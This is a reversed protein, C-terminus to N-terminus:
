EVWAAADEDAANMSETLLPLAAKCSALSPVLPLTHVESLYFGRTSIYKSASCIQEATDVYM